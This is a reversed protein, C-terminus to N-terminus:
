SRPKQTHHRTTPPLQRITPVAVFFSDGSSAVLQAHLSPFRPLRQELGAERRSADVATSSVAGGSVRSRAVAAASKRIVSRVRMNDPRGGGKSRSRDRYTCTPCSTSAQHDAPLHAAPPATNPRHTIEIASQPPPAGVARGLSHHPDRPIGSRSRDDTCENSAREVQDPSLDLRARGPKCAVSLRASKREKSDRLARRAQLKDNPRTGKRHM